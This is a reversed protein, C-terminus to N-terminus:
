PKEKGANWAAGSEMKALKEIAKDRETILEARIEAESREDLVTPDKAMEAEILKAMKAVFKFAAATRDAQCLYEPVSKGSVFAEVATPAFLIGLVKRTEKEDLHIKVGPYKGRREINM